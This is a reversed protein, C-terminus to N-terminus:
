IIEKLEHKCFDYNGNTCSNILTYKNCEIFGRDFKILNNKLNNFYQSPDIVETLVSTKYYEVVHHYSKQNKM